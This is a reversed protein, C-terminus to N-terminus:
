SDDPALTFAHDYYLYVINGSIVKESYGAFAGSHGNFLDITTMIRTGGYFM